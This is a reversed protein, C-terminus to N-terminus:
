RRALFRAARGSRSLKLKFRKLDDRHYVGIRPWELERGRHVRPPLAAGARYGAEAAAAVVGADVDGYPYAISDCATGTGAECAQRSHTMEEALEAQPLSSLRPHSASHSGIEWGGERLTGLGDWSLGKLETAHPGDAWQDIGDWSLDGGEAAKSTVAFVTAPLGLERLIPLGINLVSAFADDFTVAVTREHPPDHVAETFTAGRYGRDVLWRLQEEFRDPRVSLPAPWTDSLAHYCLVVRRM